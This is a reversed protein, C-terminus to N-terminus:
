LCGASNFDDASISHRRTRSATQTSGTADSDVALTPWPRSFLVAGHSRNWPAAAFRFGMDTARAFGTGGITKGGDFSCTSAQGEWPM